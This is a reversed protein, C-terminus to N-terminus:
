LSFLTIIQYNGDINHVDDTYVTLYSVTGDNFVKIYIDHYIKSKKYKITTVVADLLRNCQRVSPETGQIINM